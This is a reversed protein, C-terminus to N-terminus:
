LKKDMNSRLRNLLWLGTLAFGAVAILLSPRIGMWEGLLGGTFIGMMGIGGAFFEFSAHI